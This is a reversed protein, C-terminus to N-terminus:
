VIPEVVLVDGVTHATVRIRAGTAIESDGSVARCEVIRGQVKLMVRGQGDGAAPVRLYVSGTEGIANALDVNGQSQLRALGRMAKGVLWLAGTGALTAALVVSLPSWDLRDTGLGTLGFFTTFTAITQLSLLKLFSTQDHGVDGHAGDGGDGGGFGAHGHADGLDGDGGAGFALLVFQLVLLTGGFAACYLFVTNM